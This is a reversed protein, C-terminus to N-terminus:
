ANINLTVGSCHTAQSGLTLLGLSDQGASMLGLDVTLGKGFTLIEVNVDGTGLELLKAHRLESLAHRGYLLDKLIGVDGLRLDM